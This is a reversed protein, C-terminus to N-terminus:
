GPDGLGKRIYLKEFLLPLKGALAEGTAAEALSGVTIIITEFTGNKDQDGEVEM